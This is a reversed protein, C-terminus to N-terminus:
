VVKDLIVYSQGGQVRLLIVKDGTKLGERIVIKSLANSTSGGPAAHIHTLDIEYRTLSEPIVFFEKPLIQKQDIKIKLEDANLVEGFTIAVPNNAGVAGVSAQKIIEIMGM